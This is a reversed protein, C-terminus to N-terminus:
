DVLEKEAVPQPAPKPANERGRVLSFGAAVLCLFISAYFANHMGVVFADALARTLGLNKGVFLRMVVDRPLTGAAVALSLAFSTVMGTQRMTTLTASAVGLRYGPAATMAASINPSFFMGVGLGMLGLDFAIQHYSSNGTLRAMLALALAQVLLGLTAPVRAGLRDAVWGALPAVVASIIPLPLILLAASLPDYGRVDQLYYIILFQVAFLALAQLMASLSSFTYVRNRFLNLDLVPSATHNEWYLFFVVMAAFLGFLSLVFPSSWGQRVGLTLAMLLIVLGLSFTLAGPVDFKQDKPRVSIEKLSLFGWTVGIIGIPVNIFFLWRWHGISLIFGALVPGLIGGIAWTVANIGLARGHEHVPFAETIIAVGNVMAMAAGTGQLVRFLVLEIPTAALGCLASGITFIVFGINYMRVRGLIDALRGLSLLSVTTVLIYGMIVWVMQLMNAHLDKMMVPLGLIVITADLASMLAGITTVGLVTWKYNPGVVSGNARARRSESIVKNM